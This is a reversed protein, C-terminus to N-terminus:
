NIKRGKFFYKVKDWFTLPSLHIKQNNEDYLEYKIIPKEKLKPAKEALEEVAKKYAQEVAVRSYGQQILAFKLSEPNYSKSINKKFYDILQEKYDLRRM